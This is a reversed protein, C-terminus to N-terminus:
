GSERSISSFHTSPATHPAAAPRHSRHGRFRHAVRRAIAAMTEGGLAVVDSRSGRCPKIVTM